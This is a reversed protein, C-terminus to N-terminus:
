RIKKAFTNDTELIELSPSSYKTKIDLFEENEYENNINEQAVNDTSITNIIPEKKVKIISDKNQKKSVFFNNIKISQFKFFSFLNQSLFYILIGTFTLIHSVYSVKHLNFLQNAFVGWPEM